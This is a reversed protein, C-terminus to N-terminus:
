RVTTLNTYSVAATFPLRGQPIFGVLGQGDYILKIFLSYRSVTSLTMPPTQPPNPVYVLM